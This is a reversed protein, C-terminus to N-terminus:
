LDAFLKDISFPAGSGRSTWEPEYDDDDEIGLEGAEEWLSERKREFEDELELAKEAEIIALSTLRQILRCYLACNEAESFYADADSFLFDSNLAAEIVEMLLEIQTSFLQPFGKQRLFRPENEDILYLFEAWAVLDLPDPLFNEKQFSDLVSHLKDMTATWSSDLRPLPPLLVLTLSAEVYSTLDEHGLIEQSKDWKSRVEECVLTLIKNLLGKPHENKVNRLASTLLQLLVRTDRRDGQKALELCRSQLLTWNRQSKMLPLSREGGAGGTDSTALKIGELAATRLFDGQLKKDRGLEDIVLDRYSPHAWDLRNTRITRLFSEKLEHVIESFSIEQEPCHLEYVKALSERNIGVLRHETELMSILLWKHSTPLARFSKEMRKTPKRIAESIEMRIDEPTLKGELQQKIISPLRDSVFRRIREPTFCDDAVIAEAHERVLGKAEQDLGAARAHRYLILAKEEITLANADVLVEGPEPFKITSGQLDILRVARELIHKRSTWILWHHSDLLRYIRDLQQEWEKGRTPDYETRGFADDAVFVQKVGTEYGKFFDKPKDAVVAQRGRFVLALAIMWAIATKGMEPPGELVLFSEKQLTKWANSYAKTPVFTPVFDRALDIAMQSRTILEKSVAKNLLLKLDRISLIQPFSQRIEGHADLLDCIDKGGLTHVKLGAVSEVILSEVKARRKPSLSANTLLTYHRAKKWLGKSVRHRIRSVEKRVSALIAEEPKAGAANANEIFKVQFVFPGRESKMKSPFKLSGQFYADCGFDGTGAWSEVGLGLESKLLSQVLSEFQYWGLDDLRYSIM